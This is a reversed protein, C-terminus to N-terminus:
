SLIYSLVKVTGAAMGILLSALGLRKTWKSLTEKKRKKLQKEFNYDEVIQTLAPLKELVPGIHNIIKEDQSIHSEVRQMHLKMDIKVEHLDEKISDVKDELRQFRVEDQKAM